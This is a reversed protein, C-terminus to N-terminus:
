PTPPLAILESAALQTNLRTLSAQGAVQIASDENSSAVRIVRQVQHPLRLAEADTIATALMSAAVHPSGTTALVHATTIREIVRWQPTPPPADGPLHEEAAKAAAAARGITLLGRLHVERITFANLPGRWACPIRAIAPM